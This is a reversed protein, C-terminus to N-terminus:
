RQVGFQLLHSMMVRDIMGPRRQPLEASRLCCCADAMVLARADKRPGLEDM